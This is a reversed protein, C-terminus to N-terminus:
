QQIFIVTFYHFGRSDTAQGVGALNYRPDLMITKHQPSNLFGNYAQLATEGDGYNNNALIEGAFKFSIGAAKIMALFDTGDPTTHSFYAREVMDRSRSLSIGRLANEVSVPAAGAAKRAENIRAILENEGASLSPAPPPASAREPEAGRSTPSVSRSGSALRAMIQPNAELYRKGLLGLEVGYGSDAKEPHYEMRAREFYQVLFGNEMYPETIPYGLIRLGGNAKWFDLFSHSLSHRTQPFYVQKANNAFPASTPTLAYPPVMDAGLRSLQVENSTGAAEKHYEFRQREFYQVLRDDETVADSMPYGFVRVGGYRDFFTLFAGNVNHGTAAFFRSQTSNPASLTIDPKIAGAGLCLAVIAAAL